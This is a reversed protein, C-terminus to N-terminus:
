PITGGFRWPLAFGRRANHVKMLVSAAIGDDISRKTTFPMDGILRKNILYIDPYMM